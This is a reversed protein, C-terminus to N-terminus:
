DPILTLRGDKCEFRVECPAFNRSITIDPGADFVLRVYGKGAPHRSSCVLNVKNSVVKFDSTKLDTFGNLGRPGLPGRITASVGGSVNSEYYLMTPSWAECYFYPAPAAASSSAIIVCCTILLPMFRKARM